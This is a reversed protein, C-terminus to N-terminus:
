DETHQVAASLEAALLEFADPGDETRNNEIAIVVRELNEAIQLDLSRLARRDAPDSQQLVAVRLGNREDIQECVIQLLHLMEAPCTAALDQWTRSGSQGLPRLPEPPSTM